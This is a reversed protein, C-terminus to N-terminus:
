PSYSAADATGPALTWECTQVAPHRNSAAERGLVSRCWAYTSLNLSNLTTPGPGSPMAGSLQIIACFPRPPTPRIGSRLWPVPNLGNWMQWLRNPARGSRAGRDRHRHTKSLRYPLSPRRMRRGGESQTLRLDNTRSGSNLRFKGIALIPELGRSDRTEAM